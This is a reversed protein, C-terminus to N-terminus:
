VCVCLWGVQKVSVGLRRFTDVAEPVVRRQESAHGLTLNSNDGWSYVENPDTTQLFLFVMNVYCM